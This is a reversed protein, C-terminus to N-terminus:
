FSRNIARLTVVTSLSARPFSNSLKKVFILLIHSVHNYFLHYIHYIVKYYRWFRWKQYGDDLSRERAEFSAIPESETEKTDDVLSVEGDDKIDDLISSHGERKSAKSM